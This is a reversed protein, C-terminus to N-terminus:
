RAPMSTNPFYLIQNMVVVRPKSANAPVPVYVGLINVIKITSVIIGLTSKFFFSVFVFVCFPCSSITVITTTMTVVEM